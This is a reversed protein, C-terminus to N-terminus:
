QGDHVCGADRQDDDRDELFSGSWLRIRRDYYGVMLIATGQMQREEYVILDPFDTRRDKISLAPLVVHIFYTSYMGASGKFFYM